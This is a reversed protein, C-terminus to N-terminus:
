LVGNAVENQLVRNIIAACEASNALLCLHHGGAINHKSANRNARRVLETCRLFSPMDHDGSLLSIKSQIRGIRKASQAHTFMGAMIGTQLVGWDHALAVDRLQNWLKSKTEIGAFIQPPVTMWRDVLWPGVGRERAMSILDQNCTAAEPDEPGGVLGPAALIVTEFLDPALCAAELSITGGFSLGALDTAQVARAVSLVHEALTRTTDGPVLARATGHGPLDFAFHHHDPLLSWLHDWISANLTYGHVWLIRRAPRAGSRQPSMEHCHLNRRDPPSTM